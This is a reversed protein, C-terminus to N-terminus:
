AQDSDDAHDIAKGSREISKMIGHLTRIDQESLPFRNFMAKINRMVVTRMDPNTFFGGSAIKEELMQYFFARTGHEALMHDGQDPALIDDMAHGDCAALAAMRCEWGMLLVAQALNLSSFAPNLPVTVIINALAVEDNDLGAREGGFLLAAKGGAQHHAIVAAAAQRPNMEIQAMGRKRATTAVLLTIDAAADSTAAHVAAKDLLDSGGSAIAVAAPNPWGDRPAVLRLDSCGCNKMARAASGINEGMQPHSLIVAPMLGTLASDDGDAM